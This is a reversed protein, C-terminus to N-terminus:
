CPSSRRDGVCSTSRACELAGPWPLLSCDSTPIPQRRPSGRAPYWNGAMVSCCTLPPATSASTAPQDTDVRRKVGVTLREDVVLEEQWTGPRESPLILVRDGVAALTVDPGTEVVTGVGGSGAPSPLPPRFGYIGDILMFDSPHLPATAVRVRVETPGPAQHGSM